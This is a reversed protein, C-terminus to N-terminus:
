RWSTNIIYLLNLRIQKILEASYEEYEKDMGKEHAYYPPSDNWSGMAGFVDASSCAAFRGAYEPPLMKMSEKVKDIDEGEGNLYKISRRFADGFGKFGITDAFAAIKTLIAIFDEKGDGIRPPDEPGNKWELENYYVNWLHLKSDFEWKSSFTTVSKEWVCVISPRSTNAFGLVQRDKIEVPMIFYIDKLGKEKCHEFWEAASFVVKNETFLFKKEPLFDFQIRNIFKDDIDIFDSGEKIAKITSLVLKCANETEGNM